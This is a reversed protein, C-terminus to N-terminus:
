PSPSAAPKQWGAGNPALTAATPPTAGRPTRRARGGKKGFPAKGIGGDDTQGDGDLGIAGDDARLRM